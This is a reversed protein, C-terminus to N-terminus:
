TTPASSRSVRSTRSARASPRKKLTYGLKWLSRMITSRSGPAHRARNFRELLGELTLDNHADVLAKLRKLDRESLAPLRHRRISSPELSEGARHKALWRKLSASGCGFAEAVQELTGLGNSYETIAAM